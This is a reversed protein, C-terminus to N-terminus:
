RWTPSKTCRIRHTRQPTDLVLVLDDDGELHSSYIWERRKPTVTLYSTGVPLDHHIYLEVGVANWSENEPLVKVYSSPDLMAATPNLDVLEKALPTYDRALEELIEKDRQAARLIDHASKHDPFHAVGTGIHIVPYDYDLAGLAIGYAIASVCENITKPKAPIPHHSM